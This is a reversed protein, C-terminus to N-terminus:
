VIFKEETLKYIYLQRITYRGTLKYPKQSIFMSGILIQSFLITLVM